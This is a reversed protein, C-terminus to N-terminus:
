KKEEKIDTITGEFLNLIEQIEKKNEIQKIKEEKTIKPEEKPEIYTVKLQKGTLKRLAGEVIDINGKEKLINLVFPKDPLIEVVENKVAVPKCKVLLTATPVSKQKVENIIADWLASIKEIDIEGISKKEELRNDNETPLTEEIVPEQTFQPEETKVSKLSINEEVVPKEIRGEFDEFGKLYDLFEVLIAFYTDKYTKIKNSIDIFIKSIEVLKRLTTTKLLEKMEAVVEKDRKEEVLANNGLKMALLDEFFEGLENLFIKPDRGNVEMQRISSFIMETRGQILASALNLVFKEDPIDLLNRVTDEDIASSVTIVQELLSLANRLSGSSVRAILESAADTIEAGEKKAIEQVKKSLGKISIPKFYLRECRSSITPPIKDSETTALIFVVNKPPEELTKLLANFAQPTLMHAEDIIYVKYKSNVPVYQVHEKLNRIEDIGRNSAADIEIVDLSAGNTIAICNDCKLCPTDTPGNVCNLGKAFIRAITTKGSGKPGAFLYAHSIKGQKLEARLVKVVSEQEVVEDFTQPRYKRYLAIYDM